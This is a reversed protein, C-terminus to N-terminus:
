WNPLDEGFYEDFTYFSEIKGNERFNNDEKIRDTPRGYGNLNDLVTDSASKENDAQVWFCRPRSAYVVYKPM